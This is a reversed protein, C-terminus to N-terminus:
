AGVLHVHHRGELHRAIRRATVANGTAETLSALVLVTRSRPADVLTIETPMKLHLGFAAIYYDCNRKNAKRRVFSLTLKL